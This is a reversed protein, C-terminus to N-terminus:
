TFIAEYTTGDDDRAIPVVFIELAGLAAHELRYIAQALQPRPPGRLVLSFPDRGGPREGLASASDLVLEVDGSVAAITFTEGVHPEFTALTLEDLSM